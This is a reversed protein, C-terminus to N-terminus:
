DVGPALLHVRLLDLLRELEVRRHAVGDHHPDRVVAEAFGDGREDFRFRAAREVLLEEDGVHLVLQGGVFRGFADERDVRDPPGGVALDVIAAELGLGHAPRSHRAGPSSRFRARARYTAFGLPPERGSLLCRVMALGTRLSSANLRESASAPQAAGSAALVVQFGGTVSPGTVGYVLTRSPTMVTAPAAHAVAARSTSSSAAPTTPQFRTLVSALPSTVLKGPQIITATRPAKPRGMKDKTLGLSARKVLGTYARASPRATPPM